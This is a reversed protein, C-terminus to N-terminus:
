FFMIHGEQMNMFLVSLEAEMALAAVFKLLACVVHITGNLIIPESHWLLLGLFFHGNVHVKAELVGLYSEGSHINLIMDSADYRINAEPHTASYDSAPYPPKLKQQHMQKSVPLQASLHPSHPIWM